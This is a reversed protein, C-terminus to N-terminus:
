FYLLTFYQGIVFITINRDTIMVDNYGHAIQAAMKSISALSLLRSITKHKEYNQTFKIM